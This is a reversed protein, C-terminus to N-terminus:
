LIDYGGRNPVRPGATWKGPAIISTPTQARPFFQLSLAPMIFRQFRIRLVPLPSMRVSFTGAILGGIGVSATLYVATIILRDVQLCQWATIM